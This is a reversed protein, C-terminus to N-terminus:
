KRVEVERVGKLLDVMDEPLPSSVSIRKGTFPHTWEVTVAHLAARRFKLAFDRRFAYKQEGVLPHGAGAFHIRIQNTRGTVLEVEAVSFDRHEEVVSYLTTAPKAAAYKHFRREDFDSVAGRFEGHKQRLRGQVFAVYMKKVKHEAFLDMMRQQNQKGKAFIIAGSTDRDLRHCPHLKPLGEKRFQENVISTLTRSEGHPTPIVVLRAPKDFVVYWEDEFLKPIPQSAQRM